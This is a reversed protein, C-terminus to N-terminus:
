NRRLNDQVLDGFAPDIITVFFRMLLVIDMGHDEERDEQKEATYFERRFRCCHDFDM